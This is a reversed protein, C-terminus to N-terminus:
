RSSAQRQLHDRLDVMNGLVGRHYLAEAIDVPDHHMVMTAQCGAGQGTVTWTHRHVPVRVLGDSSPALGTDVQAELIRKDPYLRVRLTYERDKLPSCDDRQYVILSEGSGSVVKQAAVRPPLSGGFDSLEAWVADASADIDLVVRYERYDSGSVTRSYVAVGDKNRDERWDGAAAPLPLMTLATAVLVLRSGLV